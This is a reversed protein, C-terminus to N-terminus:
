IIHNEKLFGKVVQRYEHPHDDLSVAHESGPALWLKRYGVAKREYVEISMEPPVYTDNEGHILLLPAEIRGAVDRPSIDQYRAGTSLWFFLQGITLVPFAPLRYDEKLRFRFLDYLNSYPCDAIIFTIRPDIAAHQLSTGAGLSLGMTGVTGGPPLQEFAWDVVAKLDHKEYFGFTTNRGGSKGHNRLDYVLVNFHHDRFIPLFFLMQYGCMTIGHSLIVTKKSDEIPFYQASLEYGNPSQIRVDQKLWSQLVNEHLRGKEIEGQYVVDSPFVKPYIAVRTLYYGSALLTIVLLLVIVILWEM